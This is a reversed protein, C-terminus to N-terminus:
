VAAPAPTMAGHAMMKTFTASSIAFQGREAEFEGLGDRGIGLVVSQGNGFTVAVNANFAEHQYGHKDKIKYLDVVHRGAKLELGTLSPRLDKLTMARVELNPVKQIGGLAQAVFAVADTTRDSVGDAPREFKGVIVQNAIAKGILRALTITVEGVIYEFGRPSTGEVQHYSFHSGISFAARLTPALSAKSQSKAVWNDTLILLLAIFTALDAKPGTARNWVYFGDGVTSRALEIRVGSSKLRKNANNISFELSNLQAVQQVPTAKSFGVIDFLMVARHPTLNICYRRILNDIIQPAIQDSKDGVAAPLEVQMPKVQLAKCLTLLTTADMQRQGDFVQPVRASEEFVTSAPAMCLHVTSEEPTWGVVINKGLLWSANVAVDLEKLAAAIADRGTM